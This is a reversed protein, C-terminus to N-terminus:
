ISPNYVLIVLIKRIYGGRRRSSEREARVCVTVQVALEDIADVKTRANAARLWVVSSERFLSLNLDNKFAM